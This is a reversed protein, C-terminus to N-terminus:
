SVLLKGERSSISARWCRRAAGVKLPKKSASSLASYKFPKVVSWRLCVANIPLRSFRSM